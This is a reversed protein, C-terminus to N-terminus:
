RRRGGKASVLLEGRGYLTSVAGLSGTLAQPQVNPVVFRHSKRNSQVDLTVVPSSSPREGAVDASLQMISRWPISVYPKGDPTRVTMGGKNFALGLRPVEARAGSVQTVLTVDILDLETVGSLDSGPVGEADKRRSTWKRGSAV